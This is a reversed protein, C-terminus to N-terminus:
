QISNTEIRFSQKINKHALYVLIGHSVLSKPTNSQKSCKKVRYYSKVFTYTDHKVIECEIHAQLFLREIFHIHANLIM